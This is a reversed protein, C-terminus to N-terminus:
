LKVTCRSLLGLCLVQISRTERRMCLLGEIDPRDKDQFLCRPPPLNQLDLHKNIVIPEARADVAEQLEEGTAVLKASAQGKVVNSAVLLALVLCLLENVM